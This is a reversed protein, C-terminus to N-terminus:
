FGPIIFNLWKFLDGQVCGVIIGALALVPGLIACLIITIARIGFTPTYFRSKAAEIRITRARRNDLNIGIAPLVFSLLLLIPTLSFM